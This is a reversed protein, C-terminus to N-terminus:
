EVDIGVWLEELPHTDGTLAENWGQRISDEASPLVVSERFIRLLRLVNEMYEPPIRNIENEVQARIIEQVATM